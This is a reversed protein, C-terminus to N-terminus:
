DAGVNRGSLRRLWSGKSRDRAARYATGGPVVLEVETGTEPGSWVKLQAGIKQARERMGQMGWHDPRGGEELIKSDIGRGDDRVRLRFQRADYTIEVEVHRGGSHTLANVLAERGVSFSEELVVPHLERVGGEVVTKFTAEGGHPTEKAVRKFAEPLDNLSAAAARLNRVRDRGEALVQDARDLTKELADHAPEDVPIQRAVAHFKLILGQVSQLLTDHLDRAIREREELREEMRGRVQRAVQRLRLQYGGGLLLLFLAVASVRFWATQYYAPAISFDLSTGTENWVGSNNCAMVRFRYDGPPLDNYFAQRRNGADHWDRDHGELKYRFLIKEPAVLSLATYDIQLDRILPPLRLRGGAASTADYTKRDAVIQEVHVPPPVKNVRLRAPEVVHAGDMGMFWLKGDASETVQPSYHGGSPLIRVGDTSDFVTAQITPADKGADAAATWADLEPRAIRVLGCATHLWFSRAEDETVWHVADCPLGSRGTLTAARGNKLRSLGGDTAAWLAGDRDFRLQNVRGEGLGEAAAYSERVQGDAFYAVGGLHFGLWLGGRSPDAVLTSGHDKRGLAAWPFQRPVGGGDRLNFLGSDVNVAWLNGANDEGFSLTNGGPTGAVPTFRDNDMYGIGRTTAVWIRGRADEFLSQVGGDPLGSGAIERVGTARGARERYSTLRGDRWRSLGGYTSLWVSGDGAALVAGVISSPLGQSVGFTAVAFDRFRDLGNTTAVWINGERDEFLDYVNEGTLGDSPAFADARGRRVHLLGRDQTGVWLGGDGDRLLRKAQFQGVTSSLPYPETKGDAFRQLGGQRNILLTGDVDEGLCRIGNPEGPLAYFKPPGPKWRWLGESAGAWLNGKSDEYLNLAGRGLAGDEGFCKVGGSRIACLKGVPVARGVVWVAGERDELLKLVYQGALEAYQTLRGDKWSALGGSTGIWLTGDRAALLRLIQGSPLQPQGPPPQWPLNRVGDFRLLGFETGLWLYGDPTQAISNISGKAFGDRIKWATHAYQSADLEPNLAVARPCCALAICALAIGPLIVRRGRRTAGQM